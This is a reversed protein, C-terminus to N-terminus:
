RDLILSAEHRTRNGARDDIRMVVRHAGPPLPEELRAEVRSRPPDWGAIVPQGDIELRISGQDVGAGVEEVPLRLTGGATPGLSFRLPKVRPGVVDAMPRFLGPDGLTAEVHDGSARGELGWGAPRGPRTTVRYLGVQSVRIGEPLEYRMWLDPGQKFYATSPGVRVAGGAPILEEPSEPTDSEGTLSLLLPQYVSGVAFRLRAGMEPAELFHEAGADVRHFPAWEEWARGAEGWDAVVTVPSIPELWSAWSADGVRETAAHIPATAGRPLGMVRPARVAAGPTRLTCALFDGVPLVALRLEAGLGEPEGVPEDPRRWPLLTLEAETRNGARDWVALRVRSREGEAPGELWGFGSESSLIEDEGDAPVELRIRDRGGAEESVGSYFHRARRNGSWTIRDMALELLPRGDQELAAGAIALDGRGADDADHVALDLRAWGRLRVSGLEYRRVQRGDTGDVRQASGPEVAIPTASDGVITGPRRPVLWLKRLTPAVGDAVELGNGLPNLPQNGSDRLEFHLHPVSTGAQGATGLVDGAEFRPGGSGLALDVEYRRLRNQEGLVRRALEPAFTHLHAYVAIRGDDLRLYVARGYGGSYERVREVIGAGVARVPHGVEGRTSLDVGTHFRGPRYEGFSSTVALPGDLPGLLAAM